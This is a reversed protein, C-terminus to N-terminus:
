HRPEARTDIGVLSGDETSHALGFRMALVGAAFVVAGGVLGAIFGADTGFWLVLFVIMTGLTIAVWKVGLMFRHYTAAHSLIDAKAQSDM